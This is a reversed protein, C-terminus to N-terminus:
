LALARVHPQHLLGARLASRARCPQGDGPHRRLPQGRLEDHDRKTPRHFVFLINPQRTKTMREAGDEPYYHDINAAELFVHEIYVAPPAPEGHLIATALAILKEGYREPWFATAGM